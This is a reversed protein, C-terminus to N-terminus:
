KLIKQIQSLKNLEKDIKMKLRAFHQPKKYDFKWDPNTKRKHNELQEILNNTNMERKTKFQLLSENMTKYLM